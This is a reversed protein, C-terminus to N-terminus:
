KRSSRKRSDREDSDDTFRMAIEAASKHEPPLRSVEARLKCRDFYPDNESTAFALEYLKVEYRDGTLASLSKGIATQLESTSVDKLSRQKKM